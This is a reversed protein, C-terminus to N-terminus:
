PWVWETKSCDIPPPVIPAAPAVWTWPGQGWEITSDILRGEDLSLITWTAPEGSMLMKADKSSLVFVKDRGAPVMQWPIDFGFDIESGRYVIESGYLECRISFRRLTYQKLFFEHAIPVVYVGPSVWAPGTFIDTNARSEFNGWLTLSADTGGVYDDNRIVELRTPIDNRRYLSVTFFAGGPYGSIDFVGEGYRLPVSVQAPGSETMVWVSTEMRGHEDLRDSFRLWYLRPKSRPLTPPRLFIPAVISQKGGVADVTQVVGDEKLWYLVSSIGQGEGRPLNVTMAVATGNPAAALGTVAAPPHTWVTEAEGEISYAMLNTGDDHLLRDVKLRKGSWRSNAFPGIPRPYSTAPSSNPSLVEASPSAGSNFEPTSSDGQCSSIIPWILVAAAALLKGSTRIREM